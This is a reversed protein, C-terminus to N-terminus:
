LIHLYMPTTQIELALESCQPAGLRTRLFEFEFMTNVGLNGPFMFWLNIWIFRPLFTNSFLWLYILCFSQSHCLVSCPYTSSPDTSSSLFFGKDIFDIFALFCFCNFEGSRDQFSSHYFPLWSTIRSNRCSSYVIFVAAPPTSCLRANKTAGSTSFSFPRITNSDSLPGRPRIPSQSTSPFRELRKKSARLIIWWILSFVFPSFGLYMTQSFTVPASLEDLPLSKLATMSPMVLILYGSTDIGSHSFHVPLPSIM